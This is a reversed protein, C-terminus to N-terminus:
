NRLGKWAAQMEQYGVTDDLVRYLAEMRPLGRGGFDCSPDLQKIAKVIEIHRTTKNDICMQDLIGPKETNSDSTLSHESEGIIERETPVPMLDNRAMLEEETEQKVEFEPTHKVPINSKSKVEPLPPLNNPDGVFPIMDKRQSMLYSWPYLKGKNAGDIKRLYKPPTYPKLIGKPHAKAGKVIVRQTAEHILYEQEAQQAM